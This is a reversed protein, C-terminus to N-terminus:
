GSTLIPMGYYLWLPITVVALLHSIVVQEAALQPNGSFMESIFVSAVATPMMSVLFLIREQEPALPILNLVGLCLLPLVGLHFGALSLHRSWNSLSGPLGTRAFHSALLFLSVPVAASGVGKLHPRVEAIESNWLHNDILVVALATILTLLPPTLLGRLASVHSRIQPVAITWMAIEAGLTSFVLTAVGREGWFYACIPLPLFIYNPMMAMFRFTGRESPPLRGFTGVLLRGGLFSLILLSFIAVPMQWAQKLSSPSYQATISSFILCPFLIRILSKSLFM